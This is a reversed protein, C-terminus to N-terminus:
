CGTTQSAIMPLTGAVQPQAYSVACTAPDRAGTKQFVTAGNQRVATFGTFEIANEIGAVAGSVPYGKSVAVTAGGDVTLMAEGDQMCAPKVVCAMHVLGSSTRVTGEMSQVVAARAESPMNAFKPLATASVGGLIATVCITELLSYGGQAMGKRAANLLKM